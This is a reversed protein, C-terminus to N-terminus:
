SRNHIDIDLSNAEIYEILQFLELAMNTVYHKKDKGIALQLLKHQLAALYLALFEAANLEIDLRDTKEIDRYGTWTVSAPLIETSSSDEGALIYLVAVAATDTFNRQDEYYYNFYLVTPTDTDKLTVSYSFGELINDSTQQDIIDVIHNKLEIASLQQQEPSMFQIVWTRTWKNDILLPKSLTAYSNYMNYKPLDDIYLEYWNYLHLLDTRSLDYGCNSLYTDSVIKKTVDNYYQM